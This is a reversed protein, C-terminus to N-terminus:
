PSNGIHGLPQTPGISTFNFSEIDRRLALDYNKRLTGAYQLRCHPLLELRLPHHFKRSITQAFIDDQLFYREIGERAIELSDSELNGGVEVTIVPCSFDQEMLSGLSIQSVVLSNAFLGALKQKQSTHGYCVSFPPTTGSTNHMDVVAEM